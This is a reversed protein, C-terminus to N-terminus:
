PLPIAHGAFEESGPPTRNWNWYGNYYGPIDSACDSGCFFIGAWTGNTGPCGFTGECIMAGTNENVAICSGDIYYVQSGITMSGNFDNADEDYLFYITHGTESTEAEWACEYEFAQAVGAFLLVGLVALTITLTKKVKNEEKKTNEQISSWATM